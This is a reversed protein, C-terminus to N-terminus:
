VESKQRLFTIRETADGDLGCLENFNGVEEGKKRTRAAFEALPCSKGPGSDCGPIATIGDNINLRVFEGPSSQSDTKCSLLEFIIRGHMPSVQSKRWKRDHAIHTIPLHEEDNIVDLACMLPAIDGDHNFSFFLPGADPGEVLLNTTANLWLWGMSAAYKQGPGARYYHLVDRAYEFSLFEDQTFVDCWDSRGRVTIEFGCMEQMAYIEHDEFYMDTQKALRERIAPMYSARYENLLRYGKRQGEMEDKKNALCTRGPTLTDAGLSSHESIVQLIAKNTINYDIGFFGAAFHKATEIVRNSDSAWFKTPNEELSTRELLHQYRTRLRVGTTFSSLTGAFPGTSTLQELHTDDSSWFLEWDNFFALNGTFVRGSEKMRHVVAKQTSGAKTTPYREAHRSM